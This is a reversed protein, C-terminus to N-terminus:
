PQFKDYVTVVVLEPNPLLEQDGFMEILEQHEHSPSCDNHERVLQIVEPMCGRCIRGVEMLGELDVTSDHGGFSISDPTALMYNMQYMGIFERCYLCSRFAM